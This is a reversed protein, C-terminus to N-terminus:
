GADALTAEAARERGILTRYEANSSLRTEVKLAVLEPNRWQSTWNAEVTATAEKKIQEMRAKIEALEQRLGELDVPTGTGDADM